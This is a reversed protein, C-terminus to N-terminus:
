VVYGLEDISIGYEAVLRRNSPAYYGRLFDIERKGFEGAIERGFLRTFFGFRGGLKLKGDGVDDRGWPTMRQDSPNERAVGMLEGVIESSVGLADGLNEAYLGPSALLTEFTLVCVNERGFLEVYRAVVDGYKLTAIYNKDEANMQLAFWESFSLPFVLRKGADLGAISLFQGHRGHMWYFSLISSIQERITILIRCSGFAERVRSAVTAIDIATPHIFAESSILVVNRDSQLRVEEVYKRLPGLNPPRLESSHLLADIQPYTNEDRYRHSPIFKGLYDIEPHHPFVRIQLTSTATKPYGVHIVLPTASMM